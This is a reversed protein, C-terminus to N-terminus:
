GHCRSTERDHVLALGCVDGPPSIVSRKRASLRPQCRCQKVTRHPLVGISTFDRGGPHGPTLRGPRSRGRDTELRLRPRTRVPIRDQLTLNEIERRVLDANPVAVVSREIMRIRTSRLGIEEVVGIREGLRFVDGVRVPRDAYLILGGILNELTGQTALAVALGGVGLGAVLAPVPLGLSQAAAFLYGTVALITFIRFSLGVLQANLPQEPTRFIRLVLDGLRALAVAILWAAALHAVATLGLRIALYPPGALRLFTWAVARLGLTIALVTLPFLFPGFRRGRGSAEEWRTLRRGLRFALAAVPVAALLGLVLASWQWALAGAVPRRAPAPLLAAVRSVAPSLGGFRLEDYHIGERGPQYPLHRVREYFERARAVTPPNFLFEGPRDGSAAKELTIETHPLTFRSLGGAAVADAGPLEEEPPLPLRDLAEKLLLTAEMSSIERVSAPIQSEDLCRAAVRLPERFAPSGSAYLRWAEGTSRAFTALTARPSSRDPPDLPHLPSADAALATGALALALWSRARM